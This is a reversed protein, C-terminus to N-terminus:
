FESMRPISGHYPTVTPAILVPASSNAARGMGMAVGESFKAFMKNSASLQAQLVANHLVRDTQVSIRACRSVRSVNTCTIGQMPSAQSGWGHLSKPAVPPQWMM